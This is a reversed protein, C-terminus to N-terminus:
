RGQCSWENSSARYKKTNENPLCNATAIIQKIKRVIGQKLLSIVTSKKSICYTSSHSAKGFEIINNNSSLCRFYGRAPFFSVNM